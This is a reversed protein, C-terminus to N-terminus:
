HQIKQFCCSIEILDEVIEYGDIGAWELSLLICWKIVIDVNFLWLSTVCGQRLIVKVPFWESLYVGVRVCERSYVHFIDGREVIKEWKMCAYCKGCIVNIM